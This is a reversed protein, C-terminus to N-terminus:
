QYLGYNQHNIMYSLRNDLWKKLTELNKRFDFSCDPHYYSGPQYSYPWQLGNTKASPEIINAYNEIYELLQPYGEKIFSELKTKYITRFEQNAFLKSLFTYGGNSGNSKVLPVTPSAGESGDFTFAWDFDWVPGFKYVDDISDKYIYLSKPHQMEHNNAIGNVIFFDAAQNIDIYKSLSQSTSTTMVAKVMQQFDASWNKLLADPTTQLSDAIEKLDPDKVMVPLLNQASTYYPNLEYNGSLAVKFKYDEDYNSDLEFLIGKYEDIDVSGSGIGIKETMMYAGKYNGNLYVNVPLAHNSYPLNLYRAVWLAIVNRMLTCDIYNAILAFTKAKPMDGFGQKKKMKFRYPTKPMNWTSNGRGRFEVTDPKLDKITGNGDISLIAPYITNKTFGGSKFLDTIYPYEILSVHVDPIGTPRVIVSDVVNMEVSQSTGDTNKITMTTYGDTFGSYIISEIDKAKHSHFNKDNRFVHMHSHDQAVSLFATALIVILPLITKKM